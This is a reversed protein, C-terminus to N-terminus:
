ADSVAKEFSEYFKNSPDIKKKLEEHDEPMLRKFADFTKRAFNKQSPTCKACSTVVVEPLVLKFVRGVPTCPGKDLFCDIYKKLLRPNQVLNDVDFYDYRQDYYKVQSDVLELKQLCIIIVIFLSVTRNIM